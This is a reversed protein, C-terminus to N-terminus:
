AGMPAAPQAAPKPQASQQQVMQQIQDQPVSQVLEQVDEPAVGYEEALSMIVQQMAKGIVNEDVQIGIRKALEVVDALIDASAPLIVTEPIQGNSKKDLQVMVTTVVNAIAEAPDGSRLMNVIGAHTKESYLVSMGALVVREFIQQMEPTVAEGGENSSQPQSAQPKEIKEM